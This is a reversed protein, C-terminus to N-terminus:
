NLFRALNTALSKIELFLLGLKTEETALVLLVAESSCGVLISYGLDGQLVLRDLNGKKLETGIRDGLSLMAASMAATREEDMESTLCAGICLGDPSVLTAGQVEPRSMVFDNLSAQISSQVVM